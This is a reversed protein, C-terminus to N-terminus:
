AAGTPTRKLGQTLRKKAAVLRKSRYEEVTKIYSFNKKLASLHAFISSVAEALSNINVVIFWSPATWLELLQSSVKGLRSLGERETVEDILTLNNTLLDNRPSFYCWTWGLNDAIEAPSDADAIASLQTVDARLRYIEANTVLVPLIATPMIRHLSYYRDTAYPVFAWALQMLANYITNEEKQGNRNVVVGWLSKPALHLSSDSKPARLPEFPAYNFVRGNTEHNEGAETAHYESMFDSSTWPLFFWFRDQDHYKCEVLLDVETDGESRFAILDTEFWTLEGDRNVRQYEQHPACSWDISNLTVLTLHELPLGSKLFSQGWHNKAM